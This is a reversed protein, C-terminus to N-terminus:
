RLGLASGATDWNPCFVTLLIKGWVWAQTMRSFGSGLTLIEPDIIKGWM